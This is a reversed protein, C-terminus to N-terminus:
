PHIMGDTYGSIYGKRVSQVYGHIAWDAISRYDAFRSLNASYGYTPIIRALMVAAEQRTIKNNPGSHATM